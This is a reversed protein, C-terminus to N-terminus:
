SLLLRRGPPLVAAIGGSGVPEVGVITSCGLSGFTGEDFARRRETRMRVIGEGM